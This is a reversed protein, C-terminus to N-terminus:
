VTGHVVCPTLLEIFIDAINVGSLKCVKIQQNASERALTEGNCAFSASDLILSASQEKFKGADKFGFSRLIKEKLINGSQQPNFFPPNEM